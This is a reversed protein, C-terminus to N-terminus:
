EKQPLGALSRQENEARNMGATFQNFPENVGALSPEITGTAYTRNYKDLDFVFGQNEHDKGNLREWAEVEAQIVPATEEQVQQFLEFLNKVDRAVEAIIEPKCTIQRIYGHRTKWWQKATNLKTKM